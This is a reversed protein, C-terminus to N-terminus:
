KKHEKTAKLIFPLQSITFIMTLPLMGFVKFNVWFDTSFNHWIIENVMALTLFFIAWRKALIFWSEQSMEIQEGLLYSLFPKRIYNGYLLIAAFLCNIITPKIKIFTEDKLLITLGGFIGLILGSFLAVSSIKKTLLYSLTLACFTVIVMSITASILPKESDSFKYVMFFVIIPLYDNLFKLFSDSSKRSM